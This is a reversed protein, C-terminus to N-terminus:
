GPPPVTVSIESEGGDATRGKIVMSQGALRPDRNTVVLGGDPLQEVKVDSSPARLSTFRPTGDALREVRDDAPADDPAEDDGPRAPADTPRGPAGVSTELRALRREADALATSQGPASLQSRTLQVSRRLEGLEQRLEALGAPDAAAPRSAARLLAYLGVALAAMSLVTSIVLLRVISSSPSTM